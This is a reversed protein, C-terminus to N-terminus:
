ATAVAQGTQPAGRVHKACSQDSVISSGLGPSSTLGGSSITLAFRMTKGFSGFELFELTEALLKLGPFTVRQVRRAGEKPSPSVAEHTLYM